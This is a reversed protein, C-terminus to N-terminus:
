DAASASSERRVKGTDVFSLGIRNKQIWAVRCEHVVSTDNAMVLRFRAPVFAPEEVDIAAGEPSFNRVTCRMVSGGSSVYAPENIETRQYKRREEM